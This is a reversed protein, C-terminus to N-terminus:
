HEVKINWKLNKKNKKNKIKIEEEEEKRKKEKEKKGVVVFGETKGKM